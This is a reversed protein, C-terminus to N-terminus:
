GKRSCNSENFRLLIDGPGGISLACDHGSWKSIIQFLCDSCSSVSPVHHPGFICQASRVRSRQQGSVNNGGVGGGGGGGIQELARKVDDYDVKDLDVGM